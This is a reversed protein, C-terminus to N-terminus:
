KSDDFKPSDNHLHTYSVPLAAIICIGSEEPLPDMTHEYIFLLLVKDKM